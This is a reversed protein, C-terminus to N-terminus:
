SVNQERFSFLMVGGLLCYNHSTQLPVALPSNTLRHQILHVLAGRLCASEANSHKYITKDKQCSDQLHQITNQNLTRLHQVDDLLIVDLGNDRQQVFVSSIMLNPVTFM